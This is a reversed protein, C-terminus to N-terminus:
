LINSDNRKASNTHFCYQYVKLEEESACSKQIRHYPFLMHRLADILFRVRDPPEQALHPAIFPQLLENPEALYKDVKEQVGKRRINRKLRRVEDSVEKAKRFVRQDDM